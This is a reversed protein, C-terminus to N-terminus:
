PLPRRPWALGRPLLAALTEVYLPGLDPPPPEPVLVPPAVVLPSPLVLALAVPSTLISAFRTPAPLVLPLAVPPPMQAAAITVLPSPLVLPLPVADPTEIVPATGFGFLMMTGSFGNTVNLELGTATVKTVTAAFETVNLHDVMLISGNAYSSYTDTPNGATIASGNHRQSFGLSISTVGDTVFYCFPALASSDAEFTDDSTVGCVFGVVLGCKIGLGSFIKVGTGGDLTELALAYDGPGASRMAAHMGRATGSVSVSTANFATVTGVNQVSGNSSADFDATRRGGRSVLPDTVRDSMVYANKQPLGGLRLAGGLGPSVEQGSAPSLPWAQFSGRGNPISLLADSQFGHVFSGDDQALVGVFGEILVVVIKFVRAGVGSVSTWNLRVGGSLAASFQARAISAFSTGGTNDLVVVAHDDVNAEKNEPITTANDVSNWAITRQNGASDVLGVTLFGGFTPAGTDGSVFILALGGGSWNSIGPATYDVTGPSSPVTSEVIAHRLTV